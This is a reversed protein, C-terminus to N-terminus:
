IVLNPIKKEEQILENSRIMNKFAFIVRSSDLMRSTDFVSIYFDLTVPPLFESCRLYALPLLASLLPATFWAATIDTQTLHPPSM